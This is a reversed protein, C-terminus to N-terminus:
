IGPRFTCTNDFEILVLVTLTYNVQRFCLNWTIWIDGHFGVVCIANYSMPTFQTMAHKLFSLLVLVRSYAIIFQYNVVLYVFIIIYVARDHTNTPPLNCSLWTVVCMTLRNVIVKSTMSISFCNGSQVYELVHTTVVCCHIVRLCTIPGRVVSPRYLCPVLGLSPYVIDSLMMPWEPSLYTRLSLPMLVNRNCNSIIWKHSVHAFYRYYWYTYLNSYKILINVSWICTKDYFWKMNLREKNCFWCIVCSQIYIKTIHILTYTQGTAEIVKYM